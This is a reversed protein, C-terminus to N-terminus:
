PLTARPYPANQNSSTFSGTALTSDVFQRYLSDGDKVGYWSDKKEAYNYMHLISGDAFTITTDKGPYLCPRVFSGWSEAPARACM